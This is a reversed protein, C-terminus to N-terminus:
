SDPRDIGPRAVATATASAPRGTTSITVTVTVRRDDISIADVSGRDGNAALLRQATAVVVQRARVHDVVVTGRRAAATDISQAGARAAQFAIAAADGRDALSRDVTSSFWVLAGTLFVFCLTVALVNASGRDPPEVTIV